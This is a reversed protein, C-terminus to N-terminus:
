RTFHTQGRAVLRLGEQDLSEALDDAPRYCFGSLRAMQAAHRLQSASLENMPTSEPHQSFFRSHRIGDDAKTHNHHPISPSSTLPGVGAYMIGKGTSRRDVGLVIGEIPSSFM